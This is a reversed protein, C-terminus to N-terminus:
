LTLKRIVDLANRLLASVEQSADLPTVDTEFETTQLAAFQSDLLSAPMFHNARAALRTALEHRPVILHFFQIRHDLQDRLAQRHRVRLGSFALVGNQEKHEPQNFYTIISALWPQRMEDTLAKGNAMHQKNVESHFDDAEIFNWELQQALAQALTTKGTGSVGICVVLLPSQNDM